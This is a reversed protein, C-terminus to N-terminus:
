TRLFLQELFFRALYSSLIAQLHFDAVVGVQYQGATQLTDLVALVHHLDADPAPAVGLGHQLGGSVCPTWRQGRVGRM